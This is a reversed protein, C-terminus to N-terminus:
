ECVAWLYRNSAVYLVGNAAVATGYMPSDLRIKALEKAERGHAFVHFHTKTGLYVKGDAVLPSGWTEAKTEHVWVPKGTRADLCHLRGAVDPAYVLGDAVAVTSISRDLGDYDWAKEGTAADICSLMGRGRGHLPDQGIAIYIRGQHLIPTAIIQSPGVYKGDNKNGRKKRKDGDYYPIPKGDRLRYHKPNCDYAWATTLKFPKERAQAVAEFAYCIGDGGGLFILDRGGARGYSPCSWQCHWMGKAIAGGDFAV